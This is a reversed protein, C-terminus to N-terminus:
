PLLEAIARRVTAPAALGATALARTLPGSPSAVRATAPGLASASSCTLETLAGDGAPAVLVADCGSLLADLAGARLSLGLVFPAGASAALALSATRAAEDPDAALEVVLVRGRRQAAIGRATLSGSLADRAPRSAVTAPDAGTYLCVLARGARSRHALAVGSACGLAVLGSTPAVLGLAAAAARARSPDRSRSAPAPALLFGGLASM